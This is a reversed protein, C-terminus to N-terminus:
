GYNRGLITMTYSKYGLSLSVYFLGVSGIQFLITWSPYHSKEIEISLLVKGGIVGFDIERGSDALYTRTRFLKM